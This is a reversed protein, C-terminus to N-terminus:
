YFATKVFNGFTESWIDLLTKSLYRFPYVINITSFFILFPKVSESHLKSLLASFSDHFTLNTESWIGFFVLFRKNERSSQKKKLHYEMCTSQVEPSYASSKWCSDLVNKHLTWINHFLKWVKWRVVVKEDFMTQVPSVYKQCSQWFNKLQVHFFNM